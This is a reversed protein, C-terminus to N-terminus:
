SSTSLPCPNTSATVRKYVHPQPGRPSRGGVGRPDRPDETCALCTESVEAPKMQKFKKIHGKADDDVHAKGPGHCSECGQAAAPSRPNKAEGHKTGKLSAEQDTHCMVCTDSGVYGAQPAIAQAAAPSTSPSSAPTSSPPPSIRGFAAAAWLWVAVLVYRPM